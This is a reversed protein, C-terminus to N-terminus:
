PSPAGLAYQFYRCSKFSPHELGLPGTFVHLLDTTGHISSTRTAPQEVVLVELVDGAAAAGAGPTSPWRVLVVPQVRCAPRGSGAQV